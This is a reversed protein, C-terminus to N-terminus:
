RRDSCLEVVGAEDLSRRRLHNLLLAIALCLQHRLQRLNLVQERRELPSTHWEHRRRTTHCAGLSKALDHRVVIVSMSDAAVVGACGAGRHAVVGSGGRM